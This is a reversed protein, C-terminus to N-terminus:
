LTFNWVTPLTVLFRVMYSYCYKIIIDSLQFSFTCRLSAVGLFQELLHFWSHGPETILLSFLHQPNRQCESIKSFKTCESVLVTVIWKLRILESANQWVDPVSITIKIILSHCSLVDAVPAPPRQLRFTIPPIHTTAM